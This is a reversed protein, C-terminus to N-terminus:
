GAATVTNFVNFQLPLSSAQLTTHETYETTKITTFGYRMVKKWLGSEAFTVCGVDNCGRFESFVRFIHPRVSSISRNKVRDNDNRRFEHQKEAHKGCYLVLQKHYYGSIGKHFRHSLYKIVYPKKQTTPLARKPISLITLTVPNDLGGGQDGALPPCNAHIGAPLNNAKHCQPRILHAIGVRCVDRAPPFHTTFYPAGSDGAPPPYPPPTARTFVVAGKYCPNVHYPKGFPALEM